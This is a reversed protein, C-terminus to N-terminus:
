SPVFRSACTTPESLLVSRATIRTSAFPRLTGFNPSESRTSGPSHAIAIPEGYPKSLLTVSPTILALLLGPKCTTVGAPSSMWVSADILGPLLPPGRTLILPSIIPMFEITTLGPWPIPNAIGTFTTLLTIFSRICDPRTIRGHSPM